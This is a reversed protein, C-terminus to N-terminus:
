IRHSLLGIAASHWFVSKVSGVSVKQIVQLYTM